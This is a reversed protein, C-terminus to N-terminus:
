SLGAQRNAIYQSLDQWGGGVRCMVKKVTTPGNSAGGEKDANLKGARMLTTLRCTVVKRSLANSFAYQAKIEEGEKPVQNKRMPPDVREVLLGHTLSNVIAAVEADLPDWPTAPTYEHVPGPGNFTLNAFDKEFTPTYAGARSGPRSPARSSSGDRFSSPPAPATAKTITSTRPRGPSIGALSASTALSARARLAHEPTQARMALNRFTPGGSPSEAGARGFQSMASGPRSPTYLQLTPVPIMSRSPPRPPHRTPSASSHASTSFAPSYSRAFPNEDDPGRASVSRGKPAPIHSPTKPRSRPTTATSLTSATNPGPTVSRSLAARSPTRLTPVGTPLRATSLNTTSDVPSWPRSSAMSTRSLSRKYPTGLPPVPPINSDYQSYYGSSSPPRRPLTARVTGGREDKEVKTSSNWPQRGPINSSSTTRSITTGSVSGTTSANDVKSVKPSSDPTYSQSYKHSPRDPTTPAESAMRSLAGFVSSRQKRMTASPPNETGPTPPLASKKTIALPSVAGSSSTASSRSTSGTLKRAFKRFPSISRSLSISSSANSSVRSMKSASPPTALYGSPGRSTTVHGSTSSEAESATDVALLHKRTNEMEADTRTIRDRLNKWRQASEAHRRLTEGNKTVRDRVGKDIIALVKSTAPMYHKKKAEYSELLSMFVEYTVPTKDSRGSPLAANSQFDDNAGKRHVQWIFEQCRNVAKELSSMMGDAQDTVTRFVTLWKDEKLEERLVESEDQVAEWDSLLAAHKRLLAAHESHETIDGSGSEKERAAKAQLLPEMSQNINKLGKDVAELKETLSVLSQDIVSSTKADGNDGSSQSKHRLEQIETLVFIRTHIDSVAYSLETMHTSIALLRIDDVSKQKSLTRKVTITANEDDELDLSHKSSSASNNSGISAAPSPPVYNLSSQSMSSYYSSQSSTVSISGM